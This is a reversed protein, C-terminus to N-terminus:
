SSRGDAVCIHNTVCETDNGVKIGQDINCQKRACHSGMVHFLSGTPYKKLAETILEDAEKLQLMTM